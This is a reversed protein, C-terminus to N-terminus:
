KKNKNSLKRNQKTKNFNIFILKNYSIKKQLVDTYDQYQILFTVAKNEDYTM